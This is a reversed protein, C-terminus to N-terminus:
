ILLVSKRCFGSGFPFPKFAAPVRVQPFRQFVASVPEKFHHCYVSCRLGTRLHVPSILMYNAFVLLQVKRDAHHSVRKGAKIAATTLASFVDHHFDTFVPDTFHKFTSFCGAQLLLVSSPHFVETKRFELTPQSPTSEAISHELISPSM